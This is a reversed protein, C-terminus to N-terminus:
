DGFLLWLRERVLYVVRTLHQSSHAISVRLTIVVARGHGSRGIRAVAQRRARHCVLARREVGQTTVPRHCNRAM